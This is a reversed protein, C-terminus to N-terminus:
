PLAPFMKSFRPYAKFGRPKRFHSGVCCHRFYHHPMGVKILPEEANKGSPWLTALLEATFKSLFTFFSKGKNRHLIYHHLAVCFTGAVLWGNTKLRSFLQISVYVQSNGLPFEM